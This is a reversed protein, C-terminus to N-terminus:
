CGHFFSFRVGFEGLVIQQFRDPRRVVVLHVNEVFASHDIDGLQVISVLFVHDAQMEDRLAVSVVHHVHEVAVVAIVDLNKTSVLEYAYVITRSLMKLIDLSPQSPGVIRDFLLALTSHTTTVYNGECVIAVDEVHKITNTSTALDEHAVHTHVLHDNSPSQIAHTTLHAVRIQIM